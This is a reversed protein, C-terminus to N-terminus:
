SNDMRGIESKEFEFRFTVVLDAATVKWREVIHPRTLRLTHTLTVM